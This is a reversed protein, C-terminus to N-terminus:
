QGFVRRYANRRVAQSDQRLARLRDPPEPPLPQPNLAVAGFRDPPEPPLPQPNLAVAQGRVAYASRAYNQAHATAAASTLVLALAVVRLGISLTM